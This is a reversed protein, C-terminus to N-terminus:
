VEVEVFYKYNRIDSPEPIEIGFDKRTEIVLELCDKAMYLCEEITDGCTYGEEFDVINVVYGDPEKIIEIPYKKLM